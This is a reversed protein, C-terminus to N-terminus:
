IRPKPKMWSPLASVMKRKRDPAKKASMMTGPPKGKEGAPL